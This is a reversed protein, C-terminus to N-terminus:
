SLLMARPTDPDLYTESGTEMVIFSTGILATIILLAVCVLVVKPKKVVSDAVIEFPARM